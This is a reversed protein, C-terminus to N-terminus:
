RGLEIFTFQLSLEGHKKVIESITFCSTSYCISSKSPSVFGLLKYAFRIVFDKRAARHNM